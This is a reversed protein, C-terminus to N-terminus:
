KFFMILNDSDKPTLGTIKMIKQKYRLHKMSITSGLTTSRIIESTEGISGIKEM